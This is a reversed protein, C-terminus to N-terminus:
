VATHCLTMLTDSRVRAGESMHGVGKAKDQMCEM